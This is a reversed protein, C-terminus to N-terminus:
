GPREICTYGADPRLQNQGPGHPRVPHFRRPNMGSFPCLGLCSPSGGAPGPVPILPCSGRPFQSAIWRTPASDQADPLHALLYGDRHTISGLFCPQPQGTLWYCSRLLCLAPQSAVLWHWPLGWGLCSPVPLALISCIVSQPSLSPSDSFFVFVLVPSLFLASDLYATGPPQTGYIDGSM